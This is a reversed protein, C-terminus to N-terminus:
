KTFSDGAKAAVAEAYRKCLWGLAVIDEAEKGTPTFAPIGFEQSAKNFKAVNKAAIIGAARKKHVEALVKPGRSERTKKSIDAQLPPVVVDKGDDGKYTYGRARQTVLKQVAEFTVSPTATLARKVYKADSDKDTDREMIPQGKDDKEDSAVMLFPVKTLEQVIDVILERADAYTGRYFLNNNMEALGAGEKNAAKDAEAFSEYALMPVQFSQEGFGLVSRIEEKM